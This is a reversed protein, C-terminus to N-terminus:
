HSNKELSTGNTDAKSEDIFNEIPKCAGEKVALERFQKYYDDSNRFEDNELRSNKSQNKKDDEQFKNLAAKTFEIRTKVERTIPKKFLNSAVEKLSKPEKKLEFKILVNPSNTAIKIKCDSRVVVSYKSAKNDEPLLTLNDISCEKENILKDFADYIEEQTKKGQGMAGLCYFKKEEETMFMSSKNNVVDRKEKLTMKSFETATYSKSAFLFTSFVIFFINKTMHLNEWLAFFFSAM